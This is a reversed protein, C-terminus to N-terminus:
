VIPKTIANLIAGQGPVAGATPATPAMNSVRASAVRRQASSSAPAVNGGGRALPAPAGGIRDALAQQSASQPAISASRAAAPTMPADGAHLIPHAAGAKSVAHNVADFDPAILNLKGAKDAAALDEPHIHLANYIVGREGSLTKYTRFGAESLYGANAEAIKREERDAKNDLDYSLAPPSGAFLAQFAPIKILDEPPAAGEEPAPAAEEPAPPAMSADPAPPAMSPDVAPAEAGPLPTVLPLAM